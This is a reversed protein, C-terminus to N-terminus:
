ETRAEVVRTIRAKQVLHHRDGQRLTLFEEPRNLYDLIRSRHSPMDILLDGELRRDQCEVVVRRHPSQEEAEVSAPADAGAQVSAVIVARKNIFIPADEQDELLPFFPTSDNMWEEARMPGGHGAAGAPIFIRGTYTRGDACLIEATLAVTPLRLESM